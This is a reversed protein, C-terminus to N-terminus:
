SQDGGIMHFQSRRIASEIKRERESAANDALTVETWKRLFERDRAALPQADRIQKWLVEALTDNLWCMFTRARDQDIELTTLEGTEPHPWEVHGTGGDRAVRTCTAIARELIVRRSPEPPTNTDSM